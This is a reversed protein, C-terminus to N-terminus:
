NLSIHKLDHCDFFSTKVRARVQEGWGRSKALVLAESIDHPKQTVIYGYYFADPLLFLGSGFQSEAELGSLWAITSYLRGEYILTAYDADTMNIVPNFYTNWDM